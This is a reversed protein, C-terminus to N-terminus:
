HRIAVIITSSCLVFTCRSGRRSSRLRGVQIVTSSPTVFISHKTRSTEGPPALIPGIHRQVDAVSEVPAPARVYSAGTTRPPKAGLCSRRCLTGTRLTRAFLRWYIQGGARSTMAPCLRAFRRDTSPVAIGPWSSLSGNESAPGSGVDVQPRVDGRGAGASM